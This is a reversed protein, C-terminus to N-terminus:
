KGIAQQSQSLVPVIGPQTELCMVARPRGIPPAALQCRSILMGFGTPAKIIRLLVPQVPMQIASMIGAHARSLNARIGSPQKSVSLSPPREARLRQFQRLTDRGREAEVYRKAEHCLEVQM